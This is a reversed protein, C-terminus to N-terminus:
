GNVAFFIRGRYFKASKPDGDLQWAFGLSATLADVPAPDPGRMEHGGFDDLPFSVAFRNVDPWGTDQEVDEERSRKREEAGLIPQVLANTSSLEPQVGCAPLVDAIM